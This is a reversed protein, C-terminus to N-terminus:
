DAEIASRSIRQLRVLSRARSHSLARLHMQLAGASVLTTPKGQSRRSVQSARTGSGKVSERRVSERHASLLRMIQRQRRALRKALQRAFLHGVLTPKPHVLTRLLLMPQKAASASIQLRKTKTENLYSKLGENAQTFADFHVKLLLNLKCYTQAICHATTPENTMLSVEGFYGGPGLTALVSGRADLVRVLGTEIIYFAHAKEGAKVIVEEPVAISETMMLLLAMVQESNLTSFFPVKRVVGRHLHHRLLLEVKSPLAPTFIKNTDHALLEGGSTSNYYDYIAQQVDEDVNQDRLLSAVTATHYQREDSSTHLQENLGAVIGFVCANVIMGIAFGVFSFIREVKTIALISSGSTLSFVLYYAGVYQVWLPDTLAFPIPWMKELHKEYVGVEYCVILYYVSGLYHHLAIYLLVVKALRVFVPHILLSLRREVRGVVDAQSLRYLRFVFLIRTTQVARKLHVYDTVWYGSPISSVADVVFSGSFLYSKAVETADVLLAQTTADRRATRFTVLMDLLLTLDVIAQLTLCSPSIKVIDFCVDLPLLVLFLLLVLLVFVDWRTKIPGNADLLRARHRLVLDSFQSTAMADLDNLILNTKEKFSADVNHSRRGNQTSASSHVPAFLLNRHTMSSSLRSSAVSSPWAQTHLLRQLIGETPVHDSM